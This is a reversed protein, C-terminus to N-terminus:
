DDAVIDSEDTIDEVEIGDGEEFQMISEQVSLGLNIKILADNVFEHSVVIKDAGHEGYVMITNILYELALDLIGAADLRKDVEGEALGILQSAKSMVSNITPQEGLLSPTTAVTM